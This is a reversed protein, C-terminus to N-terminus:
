DTRGDTEANAHFLEVAVPHSKIFNIQFLKRHDTSFIWCNNFFRVFIVFGKYKFKYYFKHYFKV